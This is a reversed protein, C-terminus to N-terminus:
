SFIIPTLRLFHYKNFDDTPQKNNGTGQEPNGATNADVTKGIEIGSQMGNADGVGQTGGHEKDTKAHLGPHTDGAQLQQQNEYKQKEAAGRRRM